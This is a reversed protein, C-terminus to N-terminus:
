KRVKRPLSKVLNTVASLDKGKLCRLENMFSFWHELEDTNMERLTRIFLLRTRPSLQSCFKILDSQWPPLTSDSTSASKELYNFFSTLSRKELHALDVLDTLSVRWETEGALRRSLTSEDINLLHAFRRQTYSNRIMFGNMYHVLRQQYFKISFIM